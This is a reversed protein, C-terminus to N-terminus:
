LALVRPVVELQQRPLVVDETLQKPSKFRVASPLM